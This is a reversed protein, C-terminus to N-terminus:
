GAGSKFAPDTEDRLPRPENCIGCGHAAYVGVIGGVFSGGVVDGVFHYNLGLLGIAVATSAVICAWRLRPYAVWVVAVMALTRTMHGSPFSGFAGGDHFPHFGYEGDGLLSPNDNTWTEPWYRGFCYKLSDKFQAAVLLSLCAALLALEWRRFPGWARRVFLLVLVAPAWDQFLPPPAQLWWLVRSRSFDQSHVWFAVQRDVFFYCVAVLVACCLTAIASRKLLAKQWIPNFMSVVNRGFREARTSLQATPNKHAGRCTGSQAV